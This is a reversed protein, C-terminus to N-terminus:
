SATFFLTKKGFETPPSQATVRFGQKEFNERLQEIELQTKGHFSVQHTGKSPQSVPCPLTPFGACSHETLLTDLAPCRQLWLYCPDPKNVATIPVHSLSLKGCVRLMEEHNRLRVVVEGNSANRPLSTAEPPLRQVYVATSESGGM